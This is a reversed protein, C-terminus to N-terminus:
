DRATLICDEKAKSHCISFLNLHREPLWNNSVELNLNNVEVTYINSAM